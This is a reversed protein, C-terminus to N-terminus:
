KQDRGSTRGSTRGTPTASSDNGDRERNVFREVVFDAVAELDDLDLIPLADSTAAPDLAGPRVTIPGPLQDTVIAIVNPIGPVLPGSAANARRVEIKPFSENKFGEVLILDLNDTDLKDVLQELRLEEADVVETVLAWRRRSSVLTQQAGAKRLEYSDKGPVDIDFEHHAHKIVGVRIGRQRLSRIVGKAM